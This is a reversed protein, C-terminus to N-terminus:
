GVEHGRHTDTSRDRMAAARKRMSRVTKEDVRLRRALATITLKQADLIGLYWAELEGRSARGTQVKATLHAWASNNTALVESPPSTSVVPPIRDLESRARAAGQVKWTDVIQSLQGVNGPWSRRTERLWTGLEIDFQSLRNAAHRPLDTGFHLTQTTSLPRDKGCAPCVSEGDMLLVNCVCRVIVAWPKTSDTVGLLARAVDYVDDLPWDRMSPMEITIGSLRRRLDEAFEGAAVLQHLDRSTASIWRALVMRTQGKETGVPTIEHQSIARLLMHHLEKPLSGIEDIFIAGAHGAEILGIRAAKADTFGGQEWGFLEGAANAAALTAANFAISPPHAPESSDNRPARRGVRRPCQALSAELWINAHAITQAVLDKGTGTEGRILVSQDRLDLAVWPATYLSTGFCVSWVDRRVARLHRGRLRALSRASAAVAVALRRTVVPEIGSSRLSRDIDDLLNRGTTAGRVTGAAVEAAVTMGTLFRRATPPKLLAAIKRADAADLVIDRLAADWASEGPIAELLMLAPEVRERVEGCLEEIDANM